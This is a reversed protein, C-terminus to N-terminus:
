IIALLIGLLKSLLRSLKTSIFVKDIASEYVNPERPFTTQCESGTVDHVESQQDSIRKLVFRSLLNLFDRLM